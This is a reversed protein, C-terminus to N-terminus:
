FFAHGPLGHFCSDRHAQPLPLPVLEPGWDMEFPQARLASTHATQLGDLITSTPLKPSWRLAAKHCGGLISEREPLKSACEQCSEREPGPASALASALSWRLLNRSRWHCDSAPVSSSASKPDHHNGAMCASQPTAPRCASFFVLLCPSCHM